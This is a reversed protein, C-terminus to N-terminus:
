TLSGPVDHAVGAGGGDHEIGDGAVDGDGVAL